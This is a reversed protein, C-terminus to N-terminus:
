RDLRNPNEASPKSRQVDTPPHRLRAMCRWPWAWTSCCIPRPRGPTAQHDTERTRSHGGAFRGHDALDLRGYGSHARSVALSRQLDALRGPALHGLTKACQIGVPPGGTRGHRQCQGHVAGGAIANRWASRRELDPPRENVGAIEPEVLAQVVTWPSPLKGPFVYQAYNFRAQEPLWALVSDRLRATHKIAYILNQRSPYQPLMPELLPRYLLCPGAAADKAGIVFMNTLWM